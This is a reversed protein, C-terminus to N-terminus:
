IKSFTKALTNLVLKKNKSWEPAILINKPGDGTLRHVVIDERLENICLKLVDIYEDLTYIHILPLPREAQADQNALAQQKMYMEALDTGKLIYLQQLKVGQIGFRNIYRITELIDENTEGPLGLILHVVVDINRSRLAAVARDFVDLDYGRRIFAASEPHITQLGLEIWIPKIGNLEDLLDLVDEPLCDPRTGIALGVIDERLIVPMFLSRLYDVPAYTNTYSQFYAIYKSGTKKGHAKLRAIAEDVDTAAFEGSGGSSCFICGGSGCRGDRNPCTMGGDLALKYIKEGYKNKLFSDLSIYTNKMKFGYVVSGYCLIHLM